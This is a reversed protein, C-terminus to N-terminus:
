RQASPLLQLAHLLNIALRSEPNLRLLQQFEREADALLGVRAYFVGLALHSRTKKLKNLQGLASTSLVQFKMEPSSPGPSVIEKGEVVAMVTWVYIEGRKLPKPLIWEARESPLEESRAVEHGAPDNVYVWYSSAGAAKAWKL